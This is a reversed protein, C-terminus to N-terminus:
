DKIIFGHEALPEWESLASEYDGSRAADLGRQFQTGQSIEISVLLVAFSLCLTTVLKSM